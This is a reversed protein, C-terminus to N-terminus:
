LSGTLKFVIDTSYTGATETGDFVLVELIHDDLWGGTVTNGSALTKPGQAASNKIVYDGSVVDAAAGRPRHRDLLLLSPFNLQAATAGPFAKQINTAEATFTWGKPYNSFKEVVKQGTCFIPGKWLMQTGQANMEYGPYRRVQQFRSDLGTLSATQQFLGSGKPSDGKWQAASILAKFGNLDSGYLEDLGNDKNHVGARYCKCDADTRLDNLDVQWATKHLHMGVRAPISVTITETLSVNNGSINYGAAERGVVSCDTDPACVPQSSQGQGQGQASAAGGLLGALVLM